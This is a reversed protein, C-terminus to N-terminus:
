APRSERLAQALSLLDEPTHSASLSVRLRATGAPVSPPRIAAVLFGRQQLRQSWAAAAHAEGVIVPHIATHSDSPLGADRVLGRWQAIRQQLTEVHTADEELLEIAARATAATAPPLATSFIYPRSRQMLEGIVAEGAAVFAGYGGLAKGLTAMLIVRESALGLADLTGRGHRGLVGIGHADDVLLWADHTACLALMHELPAVDGDMSFVADTAVVKVEATSAALAAALAGVDRHAYRTFSARSLMAGDVLCAHNLRDGFVHAERGCLATLIGTNAAYGSAFLLARPMGVFRAFAQEAEDHVRKHGTVLPSAGAGVGHLDIAAHAAAVLRPHRSLGLYDNSSFDRLAQGSEVVSAPADAADLVRRRRELGETRRSEQRAALRRALANL